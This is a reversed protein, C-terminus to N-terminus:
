DTRVDFRISLPTSPYEDERLSSGVSMLGYNTLALRSEFGLTVEVAMGYELSGVPM